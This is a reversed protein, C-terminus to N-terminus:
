QDWTTVNADLTIDFVNGDQVDLTLTNSSFSTGSDSTTAIDESYDKAVFM